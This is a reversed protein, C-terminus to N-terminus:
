TPSSSLIRRSGARISACCNAPSSSNFIPIGSLGPIDTGHPAQDMKASWANCVRVACEAYNTDGSVYWRLTNLFAAHADADARQRSVGMNARPASTWNSQAQPDRLLRRWDDIWPHNGALVNTKMRELDATTLLGGPHVFAHVPLTGVIGLLVCAVLVSLNQNHRLARLLKM